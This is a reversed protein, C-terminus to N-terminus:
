GFDGTLVVKYRARSVAVYLMRALRNAMNCKYLNGLDVFVTNYTSGQSKDVTCAYAARIDVWTEEVENAEYLNGEARLRAATHAIDKFNNAGFYTGPLYVFSYLYGEVGHATAPTKSQIQVLQDTKLGKQPNRGSVYNNVVGYDGVELHALGLLEENILKNYNVVAQNTYALIKTDNPKHNPQKFEAIALSLFEDRPVHIINLGDPDINGFNGTIVAQKAMEVFARIPSSEEQRQVVELSVTTAKLDFVPSTSSKPATIQYPDGIFVIKCNETTKFILRLLNTDIYSAEDIFILEGTTVNGVSVLSMNGTAYDKSLRLGLASHITQCGRGTVERLVEAAKHTTTTLRVPPTRYTVDFLQYAKEFVSLEDLLHRVLFSKGCGASGKIIMVQELPNVLWDFFAESAKEQDLSLSM